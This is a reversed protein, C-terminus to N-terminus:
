IDFVDTRFAIVTYYLRLLLRENPRTCENARAATLLLGASSYPSPAVLRAKVNLFHVWVLLQIDLSRMNLACAHFLLRYYEVRYAVHPCRKETRLFINSLAVHKFM